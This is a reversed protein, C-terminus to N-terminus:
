FVARLKDRVGYFLIGVWERLASHCEQMARGQPIYWLLGEGDYRVFGTPAPLVTLGTQEFFPEARRLHWGQSVLAIRGIGDAALLRSSFRANELTTASQDEVWRAKIGYDEALTRAMVRAEAEGGIPAGGSVLLPLGTRRALHAAYRLRSLTDASPESRGYEPAPKKGGGLVVIAQVKAMEEMQVVPYRELGASLWMATRPISLVYALLIAAAIFMAGVRPRRRKLWLGFLLPLLFVFPPLLFAGFLQHVLVEPSITATM